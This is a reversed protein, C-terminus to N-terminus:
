VWFELSTNLGAMIKFTVFEHGKLRSHNVKEWIGLYELINRNRMWSYIM